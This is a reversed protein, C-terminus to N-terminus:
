FKITAQVYAFNADSSFGTSKLYDGAFFRSCGGQMSLFRNVKWKVIFDVESGCYNGAGRAANNLPRVATLGNARYWTDNTNALWFANYDVQMTVDKVPTVKFSLMTNQLNQWSFLDMIGYFPHNTPFLNQFTGIKRDGSNGDGSAYNYEAYIRPKWPADFNYGLGFTGAFANLSLGRLDGVQYAFEGSFEWGNLKKPDGKVRTGITAFDSHAKLSGSGANVAAALGGQANSTNGRAEDVMFTYFDASGFTLDTLSAYIGSFVLGRNQEDGNFLDSQDFNKATVVVPTGSFVDLTFGPKKFSLKAADFTRGINNWDFTGVLREDGFTLEQRGLKLGWPCKAYDSIESYAQRLNFADNGEAGSLGPYEPRGGFFERSDQAQAYIKLWDTPKLMMGIRLRQQVFNGDTTANKGSNFDYMNDLMEWRIREEVDFVVKGGAFSLLPQPDSPPPPSPTVQTGAVVRGALLAAAFLTTIRPKM